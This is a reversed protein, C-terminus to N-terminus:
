SPRTPSPEHSSPEIVIAPLRSIRLSPLQPAGGVGRMTRQGRGEGRGAGRSAEAVARGGSGQSASRGPGSYGPPADHCPTPSAAAEDGDDLAVDEYEPPAMHEDGVDAEDGPEPSSGAGGGSSLRPTDPQSGAGSPALASDSAVSVVSGSSPGRRHLAPSPAASRQSVAMSGTDSLLGMRESDSSGARLRTGDHRAIGVHAYSVSSVSRQRTEQIRDVELRLEELHSNSSAARSREQMRALAGGDHGHRADRRQRRLEEREAVQRRREERIQYLAAMEEERLVEDEEVTVLNVIMDVGDRDGERGLVQESNSAMQSYPPLTMVSRFSANRDVAVGAGATGASDSGRGPHTNAAHRSPASDLRHSRSQGNANCNNNNDDGWAQEYRSSRSRWYSCLRGLFGREGDDTKPGLRQRRRRKKAYAVLVFAAVTLVVSTALIIQRPM